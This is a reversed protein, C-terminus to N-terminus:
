VTVAAYTDYVKEAEERSMGFKESIRSIIRDKEIGYAIGAEVESQIARGRAYAEVAECMVKHGEQKKFQKVSDALEPYYIEEVDRCGFDHMLRGVPDDGQYSGNVYIIHSGDQFTQDVEEFHRNM